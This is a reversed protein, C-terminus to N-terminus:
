TNNHYVEPETPPPRPGARCRCPSSRAAFRASTTRSAFTRTQSARRQTLFAGHSEALNPLSALTMFTSALGSGGAMAKGPPWVRTASLASPRVGDSHQTRETGSWISADTAGSLGAISWLWSMPPGPGRESAADLCVRREAGGARRSRVATADIARRWFEVM